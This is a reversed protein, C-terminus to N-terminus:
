RSMALVSHCREQIGAPNHVRKFEDDLARVRVLGLYAKQLLRKCDDAAVEARVYHKIMQLHAAAM